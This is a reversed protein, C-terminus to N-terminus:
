SVPRKPTGYIYHDHQEALDTPLKDWEADPVDATLELIDEWIPKETPASQAAAAPKAQAQRQPLQQLLLRAAETMADDVSAFYGNIVAAQISNEVEKPVTITM